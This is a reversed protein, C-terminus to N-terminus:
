DLEEKSVKLAEPVPSLTKKAESAFAQVINNLLSSLEVITNIDAVMTFRPIKIIQDGTREAFTIRTNGGIKVAYIHNVLVAPDRMIALIEQNSTINEIKIPDVQKDESM